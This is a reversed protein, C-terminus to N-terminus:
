IHSNKLIWIPGQTKEQSKLKKRLVLILVGTIYVAVTMIQCRLCWSSMVPQNNHHRDAERGNGKPRDGTNLDRLSFGSCCTGRCCYPGQTGQHMQDTSSLGKLTRLVEQSTQGWSQISCIVKGLSAGRGGSFCPDGDLAPRPNSAADRFCYWTPLVTAVPWVPSIVHDLRMGTTAPKPADQAVPTTCLMM